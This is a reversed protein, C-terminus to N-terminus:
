IYKFIEINIYFDLYNRQLIGLLKGKIFELNKQDYIIWMLEKGVYHANTMEPM